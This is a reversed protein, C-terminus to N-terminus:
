LIRLARRAAPPLLSLLAPGLQDPPVRFRAWADNRDLYAEFTLGTGGGKEPEAYALRNFDDSRVLWSADITLEPVYLVAYVFRPDALPASRFTTHALVRGRNTRIATKVQVWLGGFGSKRNVEFDRHDDDSAPRFIELEGDTTRLCYATLLSEGLVGAQVDSMPM